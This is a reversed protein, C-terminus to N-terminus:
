LQWYAALGKEIHQQTQRPEPSDASTPHEDDNSPPVPRPFGELNPVVCCIAEGPHGVIYSAELEGNPVPPLVMPPRSPTSPHRPTQIVDLVLVVLVSSSSSSPM